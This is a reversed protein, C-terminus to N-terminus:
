LECRFARQQLSSFLTESEAALETTKASQSRTAQTIGSFKKQLELPPMPFEISGLLTQNVKFTGNTTRAGADIQKRVKATSWMAQLFEPEIQTKDITCAIMTDPFSVLPMDAEPFVGIGVMSKNGNGRCILFTNRTVMQNESPTRDFIADRLFQPAFAGSTIASLTLVKGAVTGNTSPSLGNRFSDGIVSTLTHLPWGKPNTVPDGFMDLFVSRLFDDSLQLSQQLKRRIADAKDLIAAIRQQEPLSRPVRFEFARLFDSPVRKQGAAGKMQTRGVAQIRESRLLHYVLRQDIEGSARFVHFETSGFAISQPVDVLAVKGNEFCPTIKALIVDGNMMPTYGRRVDAYKRTEPAVISKTKECVASMPVFGVTDDDAVHQLDVRPNMQVVDGLRVTRWESNRIGTEPKV